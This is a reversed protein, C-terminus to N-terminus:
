FDQLPCYSKAGLWLRNGVHVSSDVSVPAAAVVTCRRCLRAPFARQALGRLMSTLVAAPLPSCRPSHRRRAVPLMQVHRQSYGDAHATRAQGTHHSPTSGQGTWLAASRGGPVPPPSEGSGRVSRREASGRGHPTRRVRSKRASRSRPLAGRDPRRDFLGPPQSGM